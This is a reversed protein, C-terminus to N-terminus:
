YTFSKPTAGAKLLESKMINALIEYEADSENEFVVICDGCIRQDFLTTAIPNINWYELGSYDKVGLLVSRNKYIPCYLDWNLLDKQSIKIKNLMIRWCGGDEKNGSLYVKNIEVANMMMTQQVISKIEKLIHTEIKSLLRDHRTKTDDLENRFFM